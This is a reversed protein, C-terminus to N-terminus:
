FQNRPPINYELIGQQGYKIIDRLLRMNCLFDQSNTIKDVNPCSDEENSLLLKLIQDYTYNNELLGQIFAVNDACPSRVFNTFTAINPRGKGLHIVSSRRITNSINTAISPIVKNNLLDCKKTKGDYIDDERQFVRGNYVLPKDCYNRKQRTKNIDAFYM